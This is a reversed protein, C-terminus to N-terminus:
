IKGEAGLKRLELTSVGLEKALLSVVEGGSMIVTNLQDGSLKGLAMARSLAEQVAAAKEGKAGSVM